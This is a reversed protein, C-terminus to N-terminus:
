APCIRGRLEVKLDSKLKLTFQIMLMYVKVIHFISHKFTIGCLYM